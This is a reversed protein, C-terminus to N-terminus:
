WKQKQPILKKNPKVTGGIFSKILDKINMGYKNFEEKDFILDCTVPKYKKYNIKAEKLSVGEWILSNIVRIEMATLEESKAFEFLEDISDRHTRRNNFIENAVSVSIKGKKETVNKINDIHKKFKEPAYNSIRMASEVKSKPINLITCIEGVSLKRERFQLIVKSLEIPTLDVRHLNEAVNDAMYTDIDIEKDTIIAPITKWGLKKCAELRRNGFRIIYEDKEQFIGIPQLLGRHRIDEMLSILDTSEIRIRSNDLNKILNIPVEIVREEKM